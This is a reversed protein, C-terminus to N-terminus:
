RSREKALAAAEAHSRLTVGARLLIRRVTTPTVGFQAALTGSSEGAAYLRVIDAHQEATVKRRRDPPVTPVAPAQSPTSNPSVRSEGEGAHGGAASPEAPRLHALATDILAIEAAMSDRVAQVYAIADALDARPVGATSASSSATRTTSPASTDPPATTQGTGTTGTTATMPRSCPEEEPPHAHDDRNVIRDVADSAEAVAPDEVALDGLEQGLVTADPAHFKRDVEARCSGCLNDVLDEAPTSCWRCRRVPPRSPAAQPTDPAQHKSWDLGTPIRRPPATPRRPTDGHMPIPIHGDGAVYTGTNGESRM